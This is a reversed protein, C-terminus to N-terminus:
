TRRRKLATPCQAALVGAFDCPLANGIINCAQDIRVTDFVYNRPFTQILAAERISITRHAKVHTSDIMQTDACRGQGALEHFLNEWIGREGWRV